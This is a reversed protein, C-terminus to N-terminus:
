QSFLFRFDKKLQSVNEKRSTMLKAKKKVKTTERKIKIEKKKTANAREQSKLKLQHKFKVRVRETSKRSPHSIQSLRQQASLIASTTAKSAAVIVSSSFSPLLPIEEDSDRANIDSDFSSSSSFSNVVVLIESNIGSLLSSTPFDSDSRKFKEDKAPQKSYSEYQM